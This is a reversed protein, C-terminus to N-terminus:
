FFRERVTIVDGPAVKTGPRADMRSSKGDASREIYFNEERARYTFGGARAVANIVTMGDFYPYSGPSRVEGVIYFPRYTMVEVTVDPNLVYDPKLKAAIAKEIERATLGEATVAGVLPITIRGAGDVTFQGSLDAEDYVTLRVQDGNGLRYDSATDAAAHRALHTSLGLAVSTLISVIRQFKTM